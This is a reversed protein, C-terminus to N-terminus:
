EREKQASSEAEARYRLGSLLFGVDVLLLGLHAGPDCYLHGIDVVVLRFKVVAAELVAGEAGLLGLVVECAIHILM